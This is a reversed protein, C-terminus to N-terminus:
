YQSGDLPTNLTASVEEALKGNDEIFCMSFTKGGREVKEIVAKRDNQLMIFTNLYDAARVLANQQTESDIAATGKYLSDMLHYLQATITERHGKEAKFFLLGYGREEIENLWLSFEKTGSEEFAERMIEIAEGNAKDLIASQQERSLKEM